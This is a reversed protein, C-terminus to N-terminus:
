LIGGIGIYVIGAGPIKYAASQKNEISYEM